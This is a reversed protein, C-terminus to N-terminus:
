QIETGAEQNAAPAVGEARVARRLENALPLRLEPRLYRGVRMRRGEGSLEVLSGQARAPEVCVWAARFEAREIRQGFQHEVVLGGGALTITERDAAHRAYVLLAVGVVLLEFGAFGFVFHAGLMWSAGAVVMALACLSLYVMLLHRPEMSCNRRLVWQLARRGGHEFERGFRWGSAGVSAPVSWASPAITATM